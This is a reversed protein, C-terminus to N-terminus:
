YKKTKITKTHKKNKRKTTKITKSYNMPNNRSVQSRPIMYREVQGNHLEAVQIFPKTSDNVIQKGASHVEGNQMSSSYSSSISKSYKQQVPRNSINMALLRAPLNTESKTLDKRSNMTDAILDELSKSSMIKGKRSSKHSKTSAKHSRSAKIKKVMKFLLSNAKSISM